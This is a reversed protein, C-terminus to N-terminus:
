IKAATPLELHHHIGRECSRLVPFYAILARSCFLCFSLLSLLLILPFFNELVILSKFVVCLFRLCFVLRTAHQLHNAQLQKNGPKREQSLM